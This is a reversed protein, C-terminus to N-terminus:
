RAVLERYEDKKESIIKDIEDYYSAVNGEDKYIELASLMRNERTTEFSGKARELLKEVKMSLGHYEGHEAVYAIYQNESLSLRRAMLFSLGSEEKGGREYARKFYKAAMEFQFLGAYATGMNHYLAPALASETDPLQRILSDYEEIALKLKGNRLLFDAQKKKKEYESLGVNNQLVEEIKEKEEQTCYNVYDLIMGVFIGPQSGRQFLKLLQHGLEALGCEEDLWQALKKDMIDKEISFPNSVLLYCLEEVCYVNACFCEVYYPKKAYKGTCLLIRGM